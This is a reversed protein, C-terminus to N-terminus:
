PKNKVATFFLGYYHIPTATIARELPISLPSLEVAFLGVVHAACKFRGETIKVVDLSGLRPCARRDWALPVWWKPSYEYLHYVEYQM